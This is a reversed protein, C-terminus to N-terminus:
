KQTKKYNNIADHLANVALVACHVSDDPFGGLVELVMVPTLLLAEEIGKGKVLNTTVSGAAVSTGCGDTTFSIEEIIADKIRIWIKISDGCEGTVFGISDADSLAGMNRPNKMHEIAVEGFESWIKDEIEKIFDDLSSEM